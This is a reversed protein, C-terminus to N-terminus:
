VVHELGSYSKMAGRQELSIGQFLASVGHPETDMSGLVHTSDWQWVLYDKM